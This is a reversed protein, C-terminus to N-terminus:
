FSHYYSNKLITENTFTARLKYHYIITHNYPFKALVGGAGRVYGLLICLVDYSTWIDTDLCINSWYIIMDYKVNAVTQKSSIYQPM